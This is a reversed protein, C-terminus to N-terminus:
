ILRHNITCNCSPRCPCYDENIFTYDKNLSYKHIDMGYLECTSYTKHLHNLFIGNGCGIDLINKFKINKILEICKLHYEKPKYKYEKNYIENDRSTM